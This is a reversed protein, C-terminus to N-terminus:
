GGAVRTVIVIESAMTNLSTLRTSQPLAEGQGPVVDLATRGAQPAAEVIARAVDLVYHEAATVAEPEDLVALSTVRPFQLPSDGRRGAVRLIGLGQIAPSFSGSALQAEWAAILSEDWLGAGRLEKEFYRLSVGVENTTTSM